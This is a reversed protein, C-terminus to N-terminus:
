QLAFNEIIICDNLNSKEKFINKTLVANTERHKGLHNGIIKKTLFGHM